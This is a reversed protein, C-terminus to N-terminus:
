QKAARARASGKEVFAALLRKLFWDEQYFAATHRTINEFGPVAIRIQTTVKCSQKWEKVVGHAQDESVLHYALSSSKVLSPDDLPLDLQSLKLEKMGATHPILDILHAISRVGYRFEALGIFRLLAVPVKELSAGFRGRLLQIAICVKDAKRESAHLPDSLQPIKLVGGNIRSLLDILKPHHIDLPLTGKMSRAHEMTTPLRPDSGALVVVVKGLKLDHQGLTIQGDWLLPLLLAFQADHADFEDLFL